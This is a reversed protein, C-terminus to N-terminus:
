DPDNGAGGGMLEWLFRETDPAQMVATGILVADAGAEFARRVEEQSQLSSESLIRVDQGAPWPPVKERAVKRRGRLLEETVRVDANDTEWVAIDRNNIGLLDLRLGLNGVRQLERETHVEVVTELGLVHSFAQLDILTEDELQNAILLIAAAGLAKSQEVQARTRIFDKRLVPVGVASAVERLLDLSGGFIEPETVVSLGAIPCRAMRRALEVPSRGRLLDGDRPTRLKVESIVPFRGRQKIAAISQTLSGTM